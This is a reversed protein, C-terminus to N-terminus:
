KEALQKMTELAARFRKDLREHESKRVVESPMAAQDYFLTYSLRSRNAAVSEVALTGHLSAAQMNGKTQWYTYSHSTQAVMPELTTGNVLARVTGVAGAGSVYECSVQLWEAIACYSGVRQWVADASKEVTVENRIIVYDAAADAAANLSVAAMLLAVAPATSRHM